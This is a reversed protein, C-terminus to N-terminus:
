ELISEKEVPFKPAVGTSEREVLTPHITLTMRSADPTELRLALLRVAARGMAVTDVHMTTLAPRTNAAIYTDDYGIISIDEPIRRGLAHAARLAANAVDDNVCFLATLQPHDQLLRTIEDFGKTKNINFNAVCPTYLGNDKLARLYGNRRERLSTFCHECSGALGISRHGLTILQEVARYAAGFNDSIVTDYSNTSSYGDVLVIPPMRRGASAAFTEDMSVGVLLLGDVSDNYMLPPIELLRNNEDVPLSSFLLNIGSRRCADEIGMIVKSYFPNAQPLIDPDIKVIMGITLLANGGNTSNLPRIPYGLEAAVDLVRERTEDSVGPKNNLILSVTSPSVRSQAAIDGITVKKKL